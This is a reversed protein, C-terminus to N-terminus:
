LANVKNKTGILSRVLNLTLELIEVKFYLGMHYFNIIVLIHPEPNDALVVLLIFRYGINRRHEVYM